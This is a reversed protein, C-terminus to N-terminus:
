PQAIFLHDLLTQDLALNKTCSFNLFVPPLRKRGKRNRSRCFRNSARGLIRKVPQPQFYCRDDLLVLSQLLHGALATNSGKQAKLIDRALKELGGSNNAYDLKIEGADLGSTSPKEQANLFIPSVCFALLFLRVWTFLM